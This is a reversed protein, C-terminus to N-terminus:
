RSILLLKLNHKMIPKNIPDTCEEFNDIQGLFTKYQKFLRLPGGTLKIWSATFGPRSNVALNSACTKYAM